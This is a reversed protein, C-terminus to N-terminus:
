PLRDFPSIAFLKERGVEDWDGDFGALDEALRRTGTMEPVLLAGPLIKFVNSAGDLGKALEVCGELSWPCNQAAGNGCSRNFIRLSMAM